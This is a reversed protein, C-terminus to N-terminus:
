SLNLFDGFRAKKVAAPFMLNSNGAHRTRSRNEEEKRRKRLRASYGQPARSFSIKLAKTISINM